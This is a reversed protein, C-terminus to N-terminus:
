DIATYSATLLRSAIFISGKGTLHMNNKLKILLSSTGWCSDASILDVEGVTAVDPGLPAVSKFSVM